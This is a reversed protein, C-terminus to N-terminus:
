GLIPIAVIMPTGSVSCLGIKVNPVFTLAESVNDGQQTTVQIVCGVGDIQMAKTSKIWGEAKSSAKCILRFTDGNGFFEIDKVNVKSGSVDSNYLTKSMNGGVHYQEKAITAEIHDPTIRPATLGAAEIKNELDEVDINNREQFVADSQHYVGLNDIKIIWDGVAVDAFHKFKIKVNGIFIYSVSNESKSKIMLDHETVQHAMRSCPKSKYSEFM